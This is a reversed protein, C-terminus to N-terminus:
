RPGCWLRLSEVQLSLKADDRRLQRSLATELERPHACHEDPRSRRQRLQAIRRCGEGLAIGLAQLRHRDSALDDVYVRMDGRCAVRGAWGAPMVGRRFLSIQAM